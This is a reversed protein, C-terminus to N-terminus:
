VNTEEALTVTGIGAINDNHKNQCSDNYQKQPQNFFITNETWDTFTYELFTGVYSKDTSVAAESPVAPPDQLYKVTTWKYWKRM